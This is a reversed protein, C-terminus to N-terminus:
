NASNRQMLEGKVKTCEASVWRHRNGTRYKETDNKGPDVRNAKIRVSDSKRTERENRKGEQKWDTKKWKESILRLTWTETERGWRVEGKLKENPVTNGL